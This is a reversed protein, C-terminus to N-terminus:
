KFVNLPLRTTRCHVFSRTEGGINVQIVYLHIGTAFRSPNEEDKLQIRGIKLTKGYFDCFIHSLDHNYFYHETLKKTKHNVKQIHIIMLSYVYLIKSKVKSVELRIEEVQILGKRYKRSTHKM